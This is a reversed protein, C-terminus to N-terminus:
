GDVRRVTSQIWGIKDLFAEVKADIDRSVENEGERYPWIPHGANPYVHLECRGGIAAVRTQFLHATKAPLVEDQDGVLLLTPPAPAAVHELPSIEPAGAGLSAVRYGSPGTDLVPYLLVLADPRCSVHPDDSPDDFGRVWTAAAALHGGASAGAAAVRAPDIGLEPAHARIWRLASKADAVSDYPTSPGTVDIRYDAAIAVLGREALRACERYFQIPTGLHWGGGFFYVVAPAPRRSPARPQFVSLTLELGNVRKYVYRNPEPIRTVPTPLISRLAAYWHAAIKRAGASNPHVHDDVTDTQWDFGTAQDVLVVPRSGAAHERRDTQAFDALARGLDPLYAYKPLKGSPIPQALLITVNPNIARLASVIRQTAAVISAIPHEEVTHNHGAHLLVIDAPNARYLRDVRAALEEATIGGYGEHKLPGIREDSTRSGVFEVVYGHSFLLEWLPMRYSVFTKSGETISDGLAMITVPCATVARASIALITACTFRRLFVSIRIM